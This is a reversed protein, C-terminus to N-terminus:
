GSEGEGRDGEEKGRKLWMRCNKEVFKDVADCSVAVSVGLEESM